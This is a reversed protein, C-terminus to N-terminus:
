KKIKYIFYFYACYIFPQVAEKNQNNSRLLYLALAAHLHLEIPCNSAVALCFCAM